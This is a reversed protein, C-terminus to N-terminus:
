RRRSWGGMRALMKGTQVRKPKKPYRERGRSAMITKSQTVDVRGVSIAVGWVESPWRVVGGSMASGEGDSTDSPDGNVDGPLLVM